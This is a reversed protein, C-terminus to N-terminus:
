INQSEIKKIKSHFEKPFYNLNKFACKLCFWKKYFISCESDQCIQDKCVSCDAGFLLFQRTDLQSFPDRMFYCNDKFTIFKNFPMSKGCYEYKEKLRCNNCEFWQLEKTEASTEEKLKLPGSTESEKLKKDEDKKDASEGKSPGASGEEM